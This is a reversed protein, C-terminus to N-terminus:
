RVASRKETPRTPKPATVLAAAGAVAPNRSLVGVAAGRRRHRWGFRDAFKRPGPPSSGPQQRARTRRGRPLERGSSWGEHRGWALRANWAEVTLMTRAVAEAAASTPSVTLAAASRTSGGLVVSRHRGARAPPGTPSATPIHDAVTPVVSVLDPLGPLRMATGVLAVGLGVTAAAAAGRAVLM